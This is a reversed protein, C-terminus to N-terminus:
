DTPATTLAAAGEAAEQRKARALAFAVAFIIVGNM